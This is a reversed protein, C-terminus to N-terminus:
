DVNFLTPKWADCSVTLWRLRDYKEETTHGDWPQDGDKTPRVHNFLELDDLTVHWSAQTSYTIFERTMHARTVAADRYAQSAQLAEEKTDFMGFSVQKGHVGRLAQWRGNNRQRVSLRGLNLRQAAPTALRLNRRSNNSHDLDIHDVEYGEPIEGFMRSAVIRHLYGTPEPLHAQRKLYGSGNDYWQHALLDADASSLVGHDGLIDEGGGPDAPLDIVVVAWEPEAPDTFGIHSPYTAALNAVLHARERYIDTTASPM